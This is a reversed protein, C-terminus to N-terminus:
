LNNYLIDLLNSKIETDTIAKYNIIINKFFWYEYIGIFFMLIIHELYIYRINIKTYKKAVIILATLLVSTIYFPTFSQIILTKNFNNKEQRVLESEKDYKNKYFLVQNKIYNKTEPNKTIYIEIYNFLMFFLDNIKNILIKKELNSAYVFYFSPELLSLFNIHINIHLALTTLPTKIKCWVNKIRNFFSIKLDAQEFILNEEENESDTYFVNDNEIYFDDIM